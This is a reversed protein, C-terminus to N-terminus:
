TRVVAMVAEVARDVVEGVMEPLIGIAIGALMVTLLIKAPFGLSFANLAPAVRTLLGLAVDACFLVAILPGAIQLSALFMEGIGTTLVEGLRSLSLLGTLPIADYSATFGRIVLAHGDTAFLLTVALLNYFRGFVATQTNAMPDYQMAVQFGGFMDLLDGAMQFATFYLSTIFGLGAGVVVQQAASSVLAAWELPPAQDHLRPTVALAIALALLAKIRPSVMPNAFPPTVILWASARVTALLMTVVLTADFQWTM